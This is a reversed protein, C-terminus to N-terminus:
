ENNDCPWTSVVDSGGTSSYLASGIKITPAATENTITNIATILWRTDDYTLNNKHTHTHTHMHWEIWQISRLSLIVM